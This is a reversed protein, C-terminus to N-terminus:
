IDVIVFTEAKGKNDPVIQMNSYTIAKIETGQSHRTADFKGGRATASVRYNDTDFATFVVHKMVFSETHFVYLCEDMINFLMSYMDHGDAVIDMELDDSIEEIDVMYAFMGVIASGFAERIDSGWSHVQVDATHDLYEWGGRQRLPPGSASRVSNLTSVTRRRTPRENELAVSPLQTKWISRQPLQDWEVKIVQQRNGAEGAGSKMSAATNAASQAPIYSNSLQITQLSSRHFTPFAISTAFLSELSGNAVQM